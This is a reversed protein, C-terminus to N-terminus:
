GKITQDGVRFSSGRLAKDWWIPLCENKSVEWYHGLGGGEGEANKAGRVFIKTHKKILQAEGRPLNCAEKSKKRLFNQRDRM